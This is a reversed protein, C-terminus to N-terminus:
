TVAYMRIDASDAAIGIVFRMRSPTSLMNVSEEAAEILMAKKANTASAKDARIDPKL